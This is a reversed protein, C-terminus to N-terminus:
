VFGKWMIWGSIAFALLATIMGAAGTPEKKESGKSATYLHTALRGFWGLVLLGQCIHHWM